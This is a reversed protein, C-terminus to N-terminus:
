ESLEEGVHVLPMGKSSLYNNLYDKGLRLTQYLLTSDFSDVHGDFNVDALRIDVPNMKHDILYENLSNAGWLAIYKILTADLTDIVDDNNVDGVTGVVKASDSQEFPAVVGFTSLRGNMANGAITQNLVPNMSWSGSAALMQLGASNAGMAIPHLYLGKDRGETLNLWEVSFSVPYQALREESLEVFSQGDKSLVMSVAVYQGGKAVAYGSPESAMASAQSGMLADLKNGLGVLLVGVEGVQVSTRPVTVKAKRSADAANEVLVVVPVDKLTNNEFRTAMMVRTGNSTLVYGMWTDGDHSLVQFPNDPLGNGDVDMSSNAAALSFRTEVSVEEGTTKLATAKLVHEGLAFTSLDLETTVAYPAQDEMGFPVNDLTYEVYDVSVLAQATMTFPVRTQNPSVHLTSGSVPFAIRLEEPKVVAEVVVSRSVSDSYNGSNDKVRYTVTANGAKSTDVPLGTTEIKSTLDGDYNDRATAGQDQYAKGVQVKVTSEGVLTVSPKQTDVVRVSRVVQTATNGSSDAVDYTVQYMGLKATDVNNSTTIVSSLDGDYNDSATAGADVYKTGVEVVTELSVAPTALALLGIAMLLTVTMKFVRM